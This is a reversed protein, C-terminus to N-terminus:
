AVCPKHRLTKVKYYSCYMVEPNQLHNLLDEVRPIIINQNLAGSSTAPTSQNSCHSHLSAPACAPGLSVRPEDRMIIQNTQQVTKIQRIHMKIDRPLAQTMCKPVLFATTDSCRRPQKQGYSSSSSAQVTFQKTCNTHWHPIPTQEM